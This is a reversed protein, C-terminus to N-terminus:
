CGWEKIKEAVNKKTFALIFSFNKVIDSNVSFDEVAWEPMKFKGNGKILCVDDKIVLSKIDSKLITYVFKDEDNYVARKSSYAAPENPGVRWFIYTLTKDKLVLTGNAYSSYPLACKFKAKNKVSLSIFFPVCAFIVGVGIILLAGEVELTFNFLLYAIFVCIGLTVVNLIIFITMRLKWQKHTKCIKRLIRKRESLDQTFIEM